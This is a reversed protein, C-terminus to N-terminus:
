QAVEATSPQSAPATSIEPPKLAKLNLPLFNLHPIAVRKMEFRLPYQRKEGGWILTELIFEDGRKLLSYIEPVDTFEVRLKCEVIRAPAVGTHKGTRPFVRDSVAETGWGHRPGLTMSVTGRWSPADRNWFQGEWKTFWLEKEDGPLLCVTEETPATATEDTQRPAKNFPSDRTDGASASAPAFLLMIIAILAYM